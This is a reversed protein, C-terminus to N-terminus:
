LVGMSTIIICGFKWVDRGNASSPYSELSGHTAGKVWLTLLGIRVGNFPAVSRNVQPYLPSQYLPNLEVM